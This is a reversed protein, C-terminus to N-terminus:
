PPRCGAAKSCFVWSLWTLAARCSRRPRWSSQRLRGLWPRGAAPARWGCFVARSAQRPCPRFSNSCWRPGCIPRAPMPSVQGCRRRICRRCEKDAALSLSTVFAKSAAYAAFFPTPRTAVAASLNVIAGSGKAKMRRAGWHTLQALAAVNVRLLADLRQWDNEVFAGSAGHGANNVLVDPVVGRADLEALFAAIRVSDTLDVVAIEPRNVGALSAAVSELKARDRAVLITKAGAAAAQRAIELGIGDTAGTILITQTM